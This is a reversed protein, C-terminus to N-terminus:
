RTTPLLKPPRLSNTARSRFYKITGSLNIFIIIVLLMNQDKSVQVVQLNTPIFIVIRMLRNNILREFLVCKLIILITMDLWSVPAQSMPLKRVKQAKSLM